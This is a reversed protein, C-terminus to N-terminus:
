NKQSCNKRRQEFDFNKTVILKKEDVFAFPLRYKEFPM